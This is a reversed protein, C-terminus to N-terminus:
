LGCDFPITSHTCWTSPLASRANSSFFLSSLVFSGQPCKRLAAAHAICLVTWVVSSAVGPCNTKPCSMSNGIWIYVSQARIRCCLCSLIFALLRLSFAFRISCLYRTPSFTENYFWSENGFQGHWTRSWIPNSMGISITCDANLM